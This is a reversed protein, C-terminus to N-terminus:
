HRGSFSCGRMLNFVMAGPMGDTRSERAYVMLTGDPLQIPSPESLNFPPYHGPQSVFEWTHGRDPSRTRRGALRYCHEGALSRRGEQEPRYPLSLM